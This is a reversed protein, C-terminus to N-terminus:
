SSNARFEQAFSCKTEAFQTTFIARYIRNSSLKMSLPNLIM